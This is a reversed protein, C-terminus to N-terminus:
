QEFMFSFVKGKYWVSWHVSLPESCLFRLTNCNKHMKNKLDLVAKVWGLDTNDNGNTVAIMNDATESINM